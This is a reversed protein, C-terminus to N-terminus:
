AKESKRSPFAQRSLSIWASSASTEQEGIQEGPTTSTVAQDSPEGLDELSSPGGVLKEKGTGDQGKGEEAGLRAMSELNRNESRKARARKCDAVAKASGVRASARRNTTGGADAM